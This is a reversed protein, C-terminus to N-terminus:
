FNKSEPQKEWWAIATKMDEEDDPDFPIGEAQAHTRYRKM